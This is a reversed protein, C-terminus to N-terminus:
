PLLADTPILRGQQTLLHIPAAATTALRTLGVDGSANVAYVVTDLVVGPTPQELSRCFL